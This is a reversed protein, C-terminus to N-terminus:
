VESWAQNPIRQSVIMITGDIGPEAGIDIRVVEGLRSSTKIRGRREHDNDGFRKQRRFGGGVGSKRARPEDRVQTLRSRRMM